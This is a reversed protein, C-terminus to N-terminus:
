RASLRVPLRGRPQSRGCLLRSLARFAPGPQGGVGETAGDYTALVATALGEFRAAPYPSNLLAVVTPVDGAAALMARQVTAPQQDPLNPLDEAGGAVVASTAPESVGVIYCDTQQVYQRERGAHFDDLGQWSLQLSPEVALLALSLARASACDPMLLHVAAGPSLTPLQGAILTLSSAAIRQELALHQECAICDRGTDVAADGFRAQLALVRAASARLEDEDLEGRVVADMVAAIIAQYAELSAPSRLRLPMLAIDVGARFCGIVAEAPSIIASIARMDLADTIIVGRYGLQERLLGTLIARSLTAPVVVDTGPLTSGDLAPYQIHATMVMAPASSEIVRSFPALDSALAQEADRSVCPLDTHSDQSTDGHGPFHKLSGAVGGGQLGELLAAGLAAVRDPDDGFSRVGIVPNDPNSNVDLSPVFNINIGLARLEAAQAAGALLALQQGDECAALAMNGSFSTCEARPLRTVRGGEQDVGILARPGLCRRIEGTLRRIQEVSALNERFLIVGCPNIARLGRALEDSLELVPARGDGRDFFRIDPMLKLAICQRLTSPDSNSM